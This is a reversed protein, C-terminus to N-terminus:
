WYILNNRVPLGLNTPSPLTGGEGVCDDALLIKGRMGDISIEVEEDQKVKNKYLGKIFDYNSNGPGLYLRDDGRM